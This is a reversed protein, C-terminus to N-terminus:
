SKKEVSRLLIGLASWPAQNLQTESLLSDDYYVLLSGAGGSEVRIREGGVVANTAAIAAQRDRCLSVKLLAKQALSTLAAISLHAAAAPAPKVEDPEAGGDQTADLGAPGFVEIGAEDTEFADEDFEPLPESEVSALLEEHSLMSDDKPASGQASGSNQEFNELLREAAVVKDGEVLGASTEALTDLDFAENKFVSSGSIIDAVETKAPAGFSEASGNWQAASKLQGAPSRLDSPASQPKDRSVASVFTVSKNIEQERIKREQLIKEFMERETQSWAGAGRALDIVTELGSAGETFGYLKAMATTLQYVNAASPLIEKGLFFKLAEITARDTPDEMGVHLCDGEQGFGFVSFHLALDVPILAAYEGTLNDVLSDTVLPYNFYVKFCRQIDEPAAVNLSRLVRVANERLDRSAKKIATCESRTILGDAHLFTILDQM